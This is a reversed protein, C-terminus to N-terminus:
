LDKVCRVSLGFKKPDDTRPAYYNDYSIYRLWATEALHETSSWWLGYKGIGGFSSIYLEGGPLGTFGVDNTGSNPSNWHSYGSEKLRDGAAGGLYNILTTWEADSSVHWGTPCINLTDLAYWNYLAGYDKKYTSENNNYWCYAPTKLAAWSISDTVNPIADGDNFKTTKLNEAMWTQTGITVVAYNNSDGDTCGIFNFTITKSETPRDTIVTNYIGSKGTFKLWEYTYYTMTIEDQSSKLKNANKSELEGSKGNYKIQVDRKSDSQSIIKATNSYNRTKVRVCFIGSGLGSICFSHRGNTLYSQMQTLLKGSLDFIEISSNGDYLADFEIISYDKTPNPYISMTNETESNISNTGTSFGKLRLQKEGSITISINRTVNEVKISDLTASAGTGVFSILYDQSYTKAIILFTLSLLTFKKM